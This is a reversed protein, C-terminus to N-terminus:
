ARRLRWQGRHEHCGLGLLAAETLLEIGETAVATLQDVNALNAQVDALAARDAMQKAQQAAVQDAVRKATEGAGLYTTHVRGNVRESRYYFQKRRRRQWGM